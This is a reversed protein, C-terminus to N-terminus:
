PEDSSSGEDRGEGGGSDAGDGPAAGAVAAAPVVNRANKCKPYTSCSVFEKGWRNTRIVM